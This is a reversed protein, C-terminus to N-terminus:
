LYVWCRKFEIIIGADTTKLVWAFFVLIYLQLQCVGVNLKGGGGGEYFYNPLQDLNHFFLVEM